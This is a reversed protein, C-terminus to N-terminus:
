KGSAGWGSEGRESMCKKFEDETIEISEFAPLNFFVVQAIAKHLPYLVKKIRRGGLKYVEKVTSTSKTFVVPYDNLNTITIKWEGRYGSDIVGSRVSLGLKGTSGREKIIGVLTEDFVSALGTNFFKTEHPKLIIEEDTTYLDFGADENRKSPIIATPRLRLWKLPYTLRQIVYNSANM